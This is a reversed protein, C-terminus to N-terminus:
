LKLHILAYSPQALLPTYTHTHTHTDAHTDVTNTLSHVDTHPRQTHTHEGTM